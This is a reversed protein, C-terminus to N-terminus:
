VVSKRDQADRDLIQRRQDIGVAGLRIGDGAEFPSIVPHADVIRPYVGRLGPDIPGLELGALGLRLESQSSESTPEPQGTETCGPANVILIGGARVWQALAEAQRTDICRDELVLLPLDAAEPLVDPEIDGRVNLGGGRLARQWHWTRNMSKSGSELM